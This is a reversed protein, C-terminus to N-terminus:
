NYLIIASIAIYTNDNFRHTNGDFKKSYKTIIVQTIVKGEDLLSKIINSLPIRDDFYNWVKM